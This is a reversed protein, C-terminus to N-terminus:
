KQLILIDDLPPLIGKLSLTYEVRGGYRTLSAEKMMRRHRIQRYNKAPYM